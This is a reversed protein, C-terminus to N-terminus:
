EDEEVDELVITVRSDYFDANGMFKPIEDALERDPPLPAEGFVGNAIVFVEADNTAISAQANGGETLQEVALHLQVDKAGETIDEIVFPLGITHYGTFVSQRIKPGVPDNNITFYGDIISNGDAEMNIAAGMQFTTDAYVDVYLSTIVSHEDSLAIDSLNSERFTIYDGKDVGDGIGDSYAGASGGSGLSPPTYDAEIVNQTPDSSILRRSIYTRVRIDLEGDWVYVPQNIYYSEADIGVLNMTYNIQPRALIELRREAERKMNEVRLFREDNVVIVKRYRERAEELTFGQATYWSYDEIYELGENVRRMTAGDRGYFYIVTAQPAQETKEIEEINVGYSFSVTPEEEEYRLFNVTRTISNYSLATNSQKALYNLIDLATDDEFEASYLRGTEAVEGVTWLTDKIAASAANALAVGDLYLEDVVTDNLEVQVEDAEITATQTTKVRTIEAIVFRRKDFVLERDTKLGETYEVPVEVTLRNTSDSRDELEWYQADAPALAKEANGAHGVLYVVQEM